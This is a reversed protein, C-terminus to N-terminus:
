NDFTLNELFSSVILGERTSPWALNQAATSRASQAVPTPLVNELSQLLLELRDLEEENNTRTAISLVANNLTSQGLINIVYVYLDTLFDILADVGKRSSNAVSYLVRRREALSYNVSLNGGIATLLLAILEEKNETCAIADILMTRHVQNNSAKMMNYLYVFAETTSNKLGFCYTVASIDPHVTSNKEVVELLLDRTRILCDEVGVTCAWTSITQKLYKHLHSEEDDVFDISLTEYVRAILLRVFHQYNAYNETGRLRGYFYSLTSSAATWPHYELENQLYLMLDLVIEMDIRNSRALEFSDDLLQARNLRHVNTYNEHLADIILYWNRVDYNVRYFGIQQKNAIIWSQASVNTSLRIAKSTLWNWDINDFDTANENALNYPVIWVTPDNNIIMNNFFRDQSIILEDNVYNRRIDLVPYGAQDTWSYIFDKFTTNSNPITTSNVAYEIASILDAPNVSQLQNETLYALVMRQWASDGIVNRFMNLVSGAKSYAVSDFLSAIQYLGAGRSYSMPRTGELSDAYLAWHVVDSNFMEFFENEPFTLHAAYYEYLTAFGENLWLYSWWENTILNGFWQHIYEHAIITSIMTIQRFTTVSPKYLLYQEGYKCLGWNEMAGADFGPIAAQDLKPMYTSYPIGIYEDMTELTRIGASLAFDVEEIANPRAFVRQNGNEFYEFDSIFFALLYISMVPTRDFSSVVFDEFDESTDQSLLPMNSIANYMRNHIIQLDVTAKLAPEDFCPFAARASIAQFQTAAFYRNIGADNVYEGMYFGDSDRRLLGAFEICLIYSVEPVTANQVYFALFERELDFSYQLHEIFVRDTGNIPISYLEAKTVGLERNHVYLLSSPQDVTFHIDVKGSFTRNGNHVDTKIQIWYHYPVIYRPLRYREELPNREISRSGIKYQNWEEEVSILDPLGYGVRPRPDRLRSWGVSISCFLILLNLLSM